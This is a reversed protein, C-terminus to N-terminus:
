PQSVGDPEKAPEAAPVEKVAEAPAEVKELESMKIKWWEIDAHVRNYSPAFSSPVNLGSFIMLAVLKSIIGNVDYSPVVRGQDEKLPHFEIKVDLLESIERLVEDIKEDVKSM